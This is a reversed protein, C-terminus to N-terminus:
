DLLEIEYIPEFRLTNDVNRADAEVLFDMYEVIIPTDITGEFVVTRNGAVVTGESLPGRTQWSLLLTSSATTGPVFNPLALYIRAQRGLFPRTDLRTEVNPVRAILANLQADTLDVLERDFKWVFEAQIQGQPSGLEDLQELAQASVGALLVIVALCRGKM